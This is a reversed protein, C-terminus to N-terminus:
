LIGQQARPESCSSGAVTAAQKHGDMLVRGEEVPAAYKIATNNSRTCSSCLSSALPPPVRGRVVRADWSPAAQPLKRHVGVGGMLHREKRRKLCGTFRLLAKKGTRTAAAKSNLRKVRYVAIGLLRHISILHGIPEAFEGLLRAVDMSLLLQQHVPVPQPLVLGLSLM